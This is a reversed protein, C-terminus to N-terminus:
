SDPDRGFGPCSTVPHTTHIGSKIGCGSHSLYWKNWSSDLGTPQINRIGTSGRLCGGSFPLAPRPLYERSKIQNKPNCSKIGSRSEDRSFYAVSLARCRMNRELVLSDTWVRIFLLVPDQVLLWVRAANAATLHGSHIATWKILSM